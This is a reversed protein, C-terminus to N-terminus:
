RNGSGCKRCYVSCFSPSLQGALATQLNSSGSVYVLRLAFPDQVLTSYSPLAWVEGMRNQQFRMFFVIFGSRESMKSALNHLVFSIM